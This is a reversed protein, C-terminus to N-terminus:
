LLKTSSYTYTIFYVQTYYPPLSAAYSHRIRREEGVCENDRKKKRAEGERLESLCLFRSLNEELFKVCLRMFNKEYHLLHKTPWVRVVQM